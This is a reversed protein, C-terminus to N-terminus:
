SPAQPRPLAQVHASRVGLVCPVHVHSVGGFCLCAYLCARVRACAWAGPKHAMEFKFANVTILSEHSMILAEIKRGITSRHKSSGLLLANAGSSAIYALSMPATVALAARTAADLAARGAAIAGRTPGDDGGDDARLLDLTATSAPSEPRLEPSAARAAAPAGSGADTPAGAPEARARPATGPHSPVERPPGGFSLDTNVTMAAGVRAAAAVAIRQQEQERAEALKASLVRMFEEEEVSRRAAFCCDLLPAVRAACGRTRACGAYNVWVGNTPLFGNDDLPMEDVLHALTCIQDFNPLSLPRSIIQLAHNVSTNSIRRQFLEDAAARFVGDVRYMFRIRDTPVMRSLRWVGDEDRRM